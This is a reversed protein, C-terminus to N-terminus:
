ALKDDIIGNCIFSRHSHLIVSKLRNGLLLESDKRHM